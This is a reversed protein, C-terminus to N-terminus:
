HTLAWISLGGVLSGMITLVWTTVWSPRETRSYLDKHTDRNEKQWQRTGAVHEEFRAEVNTVRGELKSLEVRLEAEAMGPDGEREEPLLRYDFVAPLKDVDFPVAM